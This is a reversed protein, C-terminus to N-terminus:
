EAAAADGDKKPEESPPPKPLAIETLLMLHDSVDRMPDKDIPVAPWPQKWDDNYGRVIKDEGVVSAERMELGCSFVRDAVSNTTTTSSFSGVASSDDCDDAEKSTNAGALMGASSSAYNADTPVINSGLTGAYIVPGAARAKKLARLL